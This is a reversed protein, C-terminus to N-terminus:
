FDGSLLKARAQMDGKSSIALEIGKLLRNGSESKQIKGKVKNKFLQGKAALLNRGSRVTEYSVKLIEKIDNDTYDSLLLSYLAVRKALMVKEEKTLLDNFFEDVETKKLSGVVELFTKNITGWVSNEVWQRSRRPM